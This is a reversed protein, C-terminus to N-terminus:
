RPLEDLVETIAQPAEDRGPATGRRVARGELTILWPTCALATPTSASPTAAAAPWGSGTAENDKSEYRVAAM